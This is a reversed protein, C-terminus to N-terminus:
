FNIYEPDHTVREEVPPLKMYKDGYVKKLYLDFNNPVYYYNGEFPIKILPYIENYKHTEKRYGYRGSFFSVYKTDYKNFLLYLKKHLSDLFRESLLFCLIQAIFIKVKNKPTENHNIKFRYLRWTFKIMKTRLNLFPLICKDYPWIDIYIGTHSFSPRSKEAFLTDKKCLKAFPEYFPIINKSYRDSLVYYSTEKLDGYIDLFKEYDNRPMAVDIDDDWPIFGKHRVAGLLTGSTLFYTLNNEECIRVFEDLLELLVSHLKILTEQEM